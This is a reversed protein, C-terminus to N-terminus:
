KITIYIYIYIYLQPDMIRATGFVVAVRTNAKRDDDALYLGDSTTPAFGNESNLTGVRVQKSKFNRDTVVKWYSTTKFILAALGNRSVDFLLKDLPYGL